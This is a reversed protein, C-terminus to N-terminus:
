DAASKILRGRTADAAAAGFVVDYTAHLSRSKLSGWLCFQVSLGIKDLTIVERAALSSGIAPPMSPLRSAMAMAGESCVFGVTNSTAGTWDNVEHIGAFGYGQFSGDIEDFGEKNSPMLKAYYAPDLAAFVPRGNVKGRLAKFADATFDALAIVEETGTTSTGFFNIDLMKASCIAWIKAALAEANKAFLRELKHGSELDSNTIAMPQSYQNLMVSIAAVTSNTQEFDDTDTLTTSAVTVNPVTLTKTEVGVIADSFDSAFINLPALLKNLSAKARDSALKTVADASLTNAM